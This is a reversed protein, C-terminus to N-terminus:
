PKKAKRHATISPSKQLAELTPIDVQPVAISGDLTVLCPLMNQVEVRRIHVCEICKDDMKLKGCMREWVKASQYKAQDLKGTRWYEDLTTDEHKAVLAATPPFFDWHVCAYTTSKYQLPKLM